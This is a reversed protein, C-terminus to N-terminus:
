DGVVSGASAHIGPRARCSPLPASTRDFRLSTAHRALGGAGGGAGQGAAHDEDRRRPDHQQQRAAPEREVPHEGRRDRAIEVVLEFVDHGREDDRGLDIRGALDAERALGGVLTEEFGAGAEVPLDRRRPALHERRAREPVALEGVALRVGIAGDVGVVAALEGVLPQADDLAVHSQGSRGDAPAELHRLAAVPQVRLDRHQPARQDAGERQEPEPEDDEGRQLREVAEPREAPEAGLDHPHAGAM